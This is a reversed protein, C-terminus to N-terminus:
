LLSVGKYVHPRFASASQYQMNKLHNRYSLPDLNRPPIMCTSPIIVVRLIKTCQQTQTILFLTPFLVLFCSFLVFLVFLVLHVLHTHTKTSFCFPPPSSDMPGHSHTEIHSFAGFALPLHSLQTHVTDYYRCFLEPPVRIIM